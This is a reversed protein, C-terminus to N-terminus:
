LVPSEHSPQFRIVPAKLEIKQASDKKQGNSFTNFSGGGMNAPTVTQITSQTRYNLFKSSQESARVSNNSQKLVPKVISRSPLIQSQDLQTPKATEHMRSSDRSPKGPAPLNNTDKSYGQSKAPGLNPINCDCTMAPEAANIEQPYISATSIVLVLLVSLHQRMNTKTLGQDDPM